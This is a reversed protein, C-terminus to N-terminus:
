FLGSGSPAKENKPGPGDFNDFMLIKGFVRFKGFDGIKGSFNMEENKAQFLFGIKEIEKGFAWLKSIWRLM